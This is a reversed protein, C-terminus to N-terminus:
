DIPEFAHAVRAVRAHVALDVDVFALAIRTLIAASTGILDSQEITRALGAISSAPALDIDILTCRSRTLIAGSTIILQSLIRANTRRTISTM